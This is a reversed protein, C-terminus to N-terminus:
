LYGNRIGLLAVQRAVKRPPWELVIGANALTETINIGMAEPCREASYDSLIGCCLNVIKAELQKRAKPQWYLVCNAEADSRTSGDKKPTAKLRQVHGALDFENVVAYFPQTLDFVQDFLPAAPPCRDCKGVNPCGKPHLHYPNVCLERVSYDIVPIVRIASISEEEFLSLNM